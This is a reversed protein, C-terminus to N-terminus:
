KIGEISHIFVLVLKYNLNYFVIKKWHEKMFLRFDAYRLNGLRFHIVKPPPISHVIRDAFDKDRSLITLSHERAYNWLYSDSVDVGLSNAYLFDDSQWLNFTQPLNADVLFRAM